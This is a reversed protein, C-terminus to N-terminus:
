SKPNPKTVPALIFRALLALVLAEWFSVSVGVMGLGIMMAWGYLPLAILSAVIIAAALKTM